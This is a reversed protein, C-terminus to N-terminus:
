GGAMTEPIRVAVVEGRATVVGNASVTADVIAKRPGLERVRARVELESDAPTPKLFDVKLSATVYRPAERQGIPRGEARESAAAATGMAHCDILSAILGGYAFGSVGIQEPRPAYRAVMDPGDGDWRSKLQLGHPNSRGCGYCTDFGAPYFDQIAPSRSASM